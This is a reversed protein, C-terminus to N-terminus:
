GAPASLFDLVLDGFEEPFLEPAAVRSPSGARSKAALTLTPMTPM